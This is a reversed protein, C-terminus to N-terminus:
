HVSECNTERIFFLIVLSIAICAPIVILAFHFNSNTYIRAGAEMQGNWVRDLLCGVLPQGLAGGIMNISNMFGLASGSVNPPNIERIISFAPFFGSSFVGFLFLMLYVTVLSLQPAYIIFLTTVLAGITGIFMPPRRKGIYDSLWGFLISGAAWGTFFVTIMKGADIANIGYQSILFTVGWLSGLIITPAYMLGGYAAVLWSQKNQATIKLGSLLSRQAVPTIPHENIAKAPKDRVVYWIAWALIGGVVSLLLMSSRWGLWHILLALPIHGGIAGLMAITISLGAVFAFRRIPFWHAVLSLCSIAAFASGFGIMARGIEAGLLQSATAFILCGLMCISAALTLLRRAGYRDLLVGIPIQMLAYIWFYYGGLNGLQTASAKFTRMLDSAMVDLSVQLLNEYFYFLAAIGWVIWPLFRSNSAHLKNTITQTNM